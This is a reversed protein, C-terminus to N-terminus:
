GGGFVTRGAAGPAQMACGQSRARQEARAAAGNALPLAGFETGCVPRSFTCGDPTSCQHESRARCLIYTGPGCARREDVFTGSLIYLHEDYSHRELVSMRYGADWQVLMTLKGTPFRQSANKSRLRAPDAAM